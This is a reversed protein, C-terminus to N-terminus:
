IVGKARFRLDVSGSGATATYKVRTATYFASSVNWMQHGAGTATVSSGSIEDWQADPNEQLNVNDTFANNSVEISFAGSIETAVITHVGYGADSFPIAVDTEADSLSVALKFSDADVPIVYYDTALSLGTPLTDTTTFQIVSGTVFGHGPVQMLLNGSGDDVVQTDLGGTLFVPGATANQITLGPPTTVVSVLVSSPVDLAFATNLDWATSILAGTGDTALHVTIATGVVSISLSQNIAGPDQFEVSISNGASGPDQAGIGMDQITASAWNDGNVTAGDGPLGSWSAAVSFGEMREIGFPASAFTAAISQGLDNRFSYKM